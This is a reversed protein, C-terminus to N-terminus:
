EAVVYSLALVRPGAHTGVVSGVIFTPSDAPAQYQKKLLALDRENLAHAFYIPYALDRPGDKETIAYLTRIAANTSMAKACNTVVGDRISIIPKVRLTEGVFGAAKSLRGGKVLYKLTDVIGYIRLRGALGTLAQAIERASRGQERMRCAAEVMLAYGLSVAKTDVTYVDTRGSMERALLASQHTGSMGSSITLVVLEDEPYRAFIELFEGASVLTTTPLEEAEELRAYFEENTITTKDLYEETGFRLKMPIIYDVGMRAAQDFPIDCTSDAIIRIM